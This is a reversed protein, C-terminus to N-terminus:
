SRRRRPRGMSHWGRWGRPRFRGTDVVGVGLVRVDRAAAELPSVMEARLAYPVGRAARRDALVCHRPEEPDQGVRFDALHPDEVVGGLPEDGPKAQM